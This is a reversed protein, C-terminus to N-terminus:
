LNVRKPELTQNKIIDGYFTIAKYIPLHYQVHDFYLHLSPAQCINPAHQDSNIM